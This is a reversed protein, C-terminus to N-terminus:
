KNNIYFKFTDKKTTIIFVPKGNEEKEVLNGNKSITDKKEIGFNFVGTSSM